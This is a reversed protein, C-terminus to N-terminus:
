CIAHSKSYLRRKCTHHTSHKEGIYWDILLGSFVYENEMLEIEILLWHLSKIYHFMQM